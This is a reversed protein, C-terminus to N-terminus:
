RRRSEVLRCALERDGSRVAFAETVDFWGEDQESGHNAGMCSCECGHGKAHRCKYACVEQQNYPQIIYVKGFTGLAANVFRDFWAKPIEWYYGPSASWKPHNRGIQKLWAYAPSFALPIRLRLLEGEGDRRLIVPIEGQKWVRKLDGRFDM